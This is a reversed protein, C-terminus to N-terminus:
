LARVDAGQSEFPARIVEAWGEAAQRLGDIVTGTQEYSCWVLVTPGAGSITAGLAGSRRASQLLDASRPYLHARHPQHLRDTLGAAILDWSATALGLTLTSAAAVNFVADSLPVTPPCRPAHRRPAFRHTPSSSCPRSAWPRSSATRPATRASSSAATSRRRCM